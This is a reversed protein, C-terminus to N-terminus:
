TGDEFIGDADDADRAGPPLSIQVRRASAISAERDDGVTAHLVHGARKAVVVTNIADSPMPVRSARSARLAAAARERDREAKEKEAKAKEHAQVIALLDSDDGALMSRGFVTTVDAVDEHTRVYELVDPLSIHGTGAADVASFVRDSFGRLVVAEDGAPAAGMHLSAVFFRHLGDADLRGRGDADYVRFLFDSRQERTGKTLVTMAALYEEWEISQSGDDDLLDFVREVFSDDEVSLQFINKTFTRRDIGSADNSLQCLAKFQIFMSYLEQRSYGTEHMMQVMDREMLYGYHRLVEGTSNMMRKAAAKELEKKKSPRVAAADSALLEPEDTTKRMRVVSTATSEAVASEIAAAALVGALQVVSKRRSGAAAAAEASISSRRGKISAHGRTQAVPMRPAFIGDIKEKTAISLGRSSKSLSLSQAGGYHSRSM